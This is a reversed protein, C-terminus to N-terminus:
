WATMAFLISAAARGTKAALDHYVAPVAKAVARAAILLLAM